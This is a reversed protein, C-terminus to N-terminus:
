KQNNQFLTLEKKNEENLFNDFYYIYYFPFFTFFLSHCVNRGCTPARKLGMFLLILEFNKHHILIYSINLIVFIM